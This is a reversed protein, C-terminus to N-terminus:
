SATQTRRALCRKQSEVITLTEAPRKAVAIGGLPGLHVLGNARLELSDSIPALGHPNEGARKDARGRPRHDLAEEAGEGVRSMNNM